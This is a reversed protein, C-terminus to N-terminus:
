DVTANLLGLSIPDPKDALRNRTFLLICGGCVLSIGCGFVGFVIGSVSEWVSIIRARALAEHLSKKNVQAFYTIEFFALALLPVGILRIYPIAQFEEIFGGTLLLSSGILINAIGSVLMCIRIGPHLARRSWWLVFPDCENSDCEALFTEFEADTMSRDDEKKFYPGRSISCKAIALSGILGVVLFAGVAKARDLFPSFLIPCLILLLLAGVALGGCGWRRRSANVMFKQYCKCHPCIAKGVNTKAGIESIAHVVKRSAEERMKDDRSLVPLGITGGRKTGGHIYVFSQQCNDCAIRRGQAYSLKITMTKYAIFPM